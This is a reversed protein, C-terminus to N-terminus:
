FPYGCNLLSYRNNLLPIQSKSTPTQLEFTIFSGALECFALYPGLDITNRYAQLLLQQYMWFVIGSEAIAGQYLAQRLLMLVQTEGWLWGAFVLCAPQLKYNQCQLPLSPLIGSVLQDLRGPSSQVLSLGQRLLRSRCEQPHFGFDNEPEWMRTYVCYMLM